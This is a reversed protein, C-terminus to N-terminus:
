QQRPLLPADPHQAMWERAQEALPRLIEEVEPHDNLGWVSTLAIRYTEFADPDFIPFGRRQADYIDRVYPRNPFEPDPPRRTTPRQAM